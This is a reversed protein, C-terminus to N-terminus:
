VCVCVFFFFFFIYEWVLYFFGAGLFFFFFFSIASSLDVPGAGLLSFRPRPPAPCHHLPLVFCCFASIFEISLPLSTSVLQCNEQLLISSPPLLVRIARQVDQPLPTDPNRAAYEDVLQDM